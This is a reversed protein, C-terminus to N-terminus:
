GLHERSRQRRRVKGGGFRVGSRRAASVWASSRPLRPASAPLWVTGGIGTVVAAASVTGPVPVAAPAV